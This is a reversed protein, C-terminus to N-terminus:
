HSLDVKSHGNSISEISINTGGDKSLSTCNFQRNKVVQKEKHM